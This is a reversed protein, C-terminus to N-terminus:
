PQIPTPVPAPTVPTITPNNITADAIYNFIKGLDLRTSGLVWDKQEKDKIFAVFKLVEGISKPNPPRGYKLIYVFVGPLDEPKIQKYSKVLDTLLEKFIPFAALAEEKQLLGDGSVDHRAYVMEIYQVVHPFLDADSLMVNKEENPVHGAAKLLNLHYGRLEEPTNQSRMNLFQPIGLFATENNEYLNLLCDESVRTQGRVLLRNTGEPLCRDLIFPKIEGARLVGSHIHEILHHLEDFSAFKDGDSVSLFLNAEIFRSKIFTVNSQDVIDFEVAIPKFQDYAVQVEDQLVASLKHVRELDKAYSRIIIRALTRAVNSLTLDRQRYFSNQIDLIQLFGKENTTLAIPQSVFHQLDQLSKKVDENKEGAIRFQVESLIENRGWSRSKSFIQAINKQLGIWAEVEPVVQDFGVADLGMRFVTKLRDEPRNFIHSWLGDFASKLSSESFETTILKQQQLALVFRVLEPTTVRQTPKLTLETVLTKKVKPWLVELGAIFDVSEFKYQSIFLDYEQYNLFAQAGVNLLLGLGAPSVTANPEGTLLIKGEIFAAFLQDFNDPLKFTEKLPGNTLHVALRRLSELDYYRVFQQALKKAAAIVKEEARSFEQHDVAEKPSNLIKMYPNLAVLDAKFSGLFAALSDIEAKHIFQKDGGVFAVKFELVEKLFEDSFHLGGEDDNFFHTEVFTVIERATYVDKNQGRINEKFVIFVEQLCDVAHEVQLDSAAGKFYIKLESISQKLCQASKVKAPKMEPNKEGTKVGCAAVVGLILTMVLLFKMKSLM